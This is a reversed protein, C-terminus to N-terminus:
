LPFRVKQDRPFSSWLFEIPDGPNAPAVKAGPTANPGCNIAPNRAGKNPDVTQIQRIISPFPPSGKPERPDNGQYAVGNITVTNVFGHASVFAATLLPVFLSTTKM